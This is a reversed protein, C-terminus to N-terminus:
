NEDNQELSEAGTIIDKISWEAPSRCPLQQVVRSLYALDAATDVTLSVRPATWTPEVPISKWNFEDPHNFIYSTVHERHSPNSTSALLKSLTETRFLEPGLGVPLDTYQQKGTTFELNKRVMQEIGRATVEPSLLPNDGNARVILDADFEQAAAYFRQLLDEHAGRFIELGLNEAWSVLPNDVDRDTTAIVITNVDSVAAMRDVLYRLMAQGCIPRLQKRPLRTSDLRAPILVVTQCDNM